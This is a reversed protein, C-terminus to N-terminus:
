RRSPMTLPPSTESCSRATECHIAAQRRTTSPCAGADRAHAYVESPCEDARREARLSHAASLRDGEPSDSVPAAPRALSNVAAWAEPTTDATWDAVDVPAAIVLSLPWRARWESRDERYLLLPLSGSRVAQLAAQRWWEAIVAPTARRHRKVEVSWGPVGELDSDWGHQRVRRRVDHGTLGRILAAADREGAKGKSRSMLGM